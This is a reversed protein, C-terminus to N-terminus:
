PCFSCGTLFSAWIILILHIPVGSSRFHNRCCRSSSLSILSRFTESLSGMLVDFRYKRIIASTEYMREDDLVRFPHGKFTYLEDLPIMRVKDPDDTSTDTGFLSEYSDLVIKSASSKMEDTRM